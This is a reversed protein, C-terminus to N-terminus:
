VYGAIPDYFRELLGITTSKGCGSSGVLAVKQGATVTISLGDLVKVEPRTPYVFDVNSFTVDGRVREPDQFVFSNM